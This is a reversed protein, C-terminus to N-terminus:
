HNSKGALCAVFKKALENNKSSMAIANKVRANSLVAARHQCAIRIIDEKDVDVIEVDLFDALKYRIESFRPDGYIVTSAELLEKGAVKNSYKWYM